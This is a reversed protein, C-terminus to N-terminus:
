IAPPFPMKNSSCLWKITVTLHCVKGFQNTSIFSYFSLMFSSCSQLLGLPWVHLSSNQTSWPIMYFESIQLNVLVIFNEFVSKFYRLKRSSSLFCYSPVPRVWNEKRRETCEPKVLTFVNLIFFCVTFYLFCWIM